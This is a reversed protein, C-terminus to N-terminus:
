LKKRYNNAHLFQMKVDKTETGKRKWRTLPPYQKSKACEIFRTKNKWRKNTKKIFCYLRKNKPIQHRCLGRNKSLDRSYKCSLFPWVSAWPITEARESHSCVWGALAPKKLSALHRWGTRRRWAMFYGHLERPKLYIFISCFQIWEDNKSLPFSSRLRGFKSGFYTTECRMCPRNVSLPWIWKYFEM